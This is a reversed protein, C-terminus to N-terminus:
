LEVSSIRQVQKPKAHITSAYSSESEMSIERAGNLRTKFDFPEPSPRRKFTSEDSRELFSDGLEVSETDHHKDSEKEDAFGNEYEQDPIDEDDNPDLHTAGAFLSEEPNLSEERALEPYGNEDEYQDDTQNRPRGDEDEFKDYQPGDENELEDDTEPNGSTTYAGAQDMQAAEENENAPQIADDDSPEEFVKEASLRQNRKSKRITWPRDLTQTTRVSQFSALIDDPDGDIMKHAGNTNKTRDRHKRKNRISPTEDGSAEPVVVTEQTSQTSEDQRRMRHRLKKKKVTSPGEGNGEDLFDSSQVLHKPQSRERDHPETGNVADQVRDRHRRKKKSVTSPGESNEDDQEGSSKTTRQRKSVGIGFGDPEDPASAEFADILEEVIDQFRMNEHGPVRNKLNRFCVRWTMRKGKADLEDRILSWPIKGERAAGSERIAILLRLKETASLTRAEDRAESLRWPTSSIPATAVKDEEDSEEREKIKKWKMSCQLRSRTHNMKKSVMNWDILSEEDVTQAGSSRRIAAICEAVAIRLQDEEDKDWRDKRMNDGCVLYNRWRDRADEPFRNITAGIQKWKRPNAAYAVRLEEDQEESWGGREYNHFKRRCTNKVNKTPIESVESFISQWLARGEASQANQQILDNIQRQTWGRFSRYNEVAQTIEDIEENSLRGKSSPTAVRPRVESIPTKPTRNILAGVRPRISEKNTSLAFPDSDDVPLRRKRRERPKSSTSPLQPLLEPTNEPENTNPHYDSEDSDREASTERPGNVETLSPRTRSVKESNRSEKDAPPSRKPKQTSKSSAIAKSPIVVRPTSISSSGTRRLPAQLLGVPTQRENLQARSEGESSSSPLMTRIDRNPPGQDKIRKAKKKSREPLTDDAARRKGLAKKSPRKPEEEEEVDSIDHAQNADQTIQASAQVADRPSSLQFHHATPAPTLPQHLLAVPHNEADYSTQAAGHSSRRAKFKKAKKLKVSLMSPDPSDQSLPIDYISQGTEVGMQNELEPKAGHDVPLSSSAQRTSNQSMAAHLLGVMAEADDEEEAEDEEQQLITQSRSARPEKFSTGNNNSTPKRKLPSEDPVEDEEVHEYIGNQSFEGGTEEVNGNQGNERTEVERLARRAKKKRGKKKTGKAKAKEAIVIEGRLQEEADEFNEIDDFDQDGQAEGDSNVPEFKGKEFEIENV